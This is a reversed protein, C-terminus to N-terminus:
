KKEGTKLLKIAMSVIHKIPVNTKKKLDLILRYTSKSIKITQEENKM